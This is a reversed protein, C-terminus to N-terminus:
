DFLLRFLIFSSYWCTTDRWKFAYMFSSAIGLETYQKERAESEKRSLLLLDGPYEAIIEDKVFERTTRIGLGSKRTRYVQTYM